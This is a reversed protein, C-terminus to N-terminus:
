NVVAFGAEAVGLTINVASVGGADVVQEITSEMLEYTNGVVLRWLQVGVIRKRTHTFSWNTQAAPFSVVLPLNETLRAAVDAYSGTPLLGLVQELGAIAAALLNHHVAVWRQEVRSGAAAASPVTNDFGRLCGTLSNGTIGAYYIVETGISVVGPVNLLGVSSLPITTQANNIASPLTTAFNNIVKQLTDVTDLAAPYQPLEPSPM